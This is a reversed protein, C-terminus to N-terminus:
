IYSTYLVQLRPSFILRVKEEEPYDSDVQKEGQVVGMWPGLGTLQPAKELTLYLMKGNDDLTETPAFSWFGTLLDFVLVLIFNHSFICCQQLNLHCGCGRRRSVWRGIAATWQSPGECTVRCAVASVVAM